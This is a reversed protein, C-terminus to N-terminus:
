RRAPYLPFTGTGGPAAGGKLIRDAAGQGFMQDFEAAKEPHATLAAISAPSPQKPAGTAPTGGGLDSSRKFMLGEGEPGSYPIARYPDTTNQFASQSAKLYEPTGPRVGARAAARDFADPTAAEPHDVKYQYLAVQRQQEADQQMRLKAAERVGDNVYPNALIAAISPSGAQAGGAGLAGIAAESEAANAASAKDLRRENLGGVLAQAVRAMGQTWSRVPSFDMGTAMMQADQKRRMEIDEPTMRTGGAGWQFPTAPQIPMQQQDQVFDGPPRQSQGLGFLGNLPNVGAM